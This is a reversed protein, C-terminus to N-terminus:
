KTVGQVTFAGRSMANGLCSYKVPKGNGEAPSRGSGHVSGMNGANAPLNKVASEGTFGMITSVHWYIYMQRFGYVSGRHNLPLSDAQLALVVPSAPKIWPDPLDGPPPIPLGSWYAQRSFGISLPAHCAITWLTAFLWVHSFRSLVACM